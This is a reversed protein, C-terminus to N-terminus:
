PTKKLRTALAEAVAATAEFQARRLDETELTSDHLATYAEALLSPILTVMPTEPTEAEMRWREIRELLEASAGFMGVDVRRNIDVVFSALEHVVQNRTSRLELLLGLDYETMANQQVLWLGAARLRDEWDLAWVEKRYRRTAVFRGELLAPFYERGEESSLPFLKRYPASLVSSKLLEWVTIFMAAKTLNMRISEPTLNSRVREEFEERSEGM